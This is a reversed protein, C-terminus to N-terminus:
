HNLTNVIFGMQSFHDDFTLAAEIRNTQMLTFSTCDTFSFNQDDYKNLLEWSKQFMTEDVQLIHVVESTLLTQGLEIARKTNIKRSILTIIEDFIYDSIFLRVPMQSLVKWIKVADTHHCDNADYLACWFSTDVFHKM